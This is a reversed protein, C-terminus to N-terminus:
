INIKGTADEGLPWSIRHILHCKEMDLDLLQEEIM